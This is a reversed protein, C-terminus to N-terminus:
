PAMDCVAGVRHGPLASSANSGGRVFGQCIGRMEGSTNRAMPYCIVINFVVVTAGAVNLPVQDNRFIALTIKWIKCYIRVIRGAKFGLGFVKRAM